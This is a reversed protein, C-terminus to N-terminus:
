FPNHDFIVIEGTVPSDYILKCVKGHLAHSVKLYLWVPARGTLIVDNGEGAMEHVKCLYNELQDFKAQDGYLKELNIKIVISM